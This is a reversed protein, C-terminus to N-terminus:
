LELLTFHRLPYYNVNLTLFTRDFMTSKAEDMKIMVLLSNIFKLNMKIQM